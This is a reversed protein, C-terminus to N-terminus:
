KKLRKREQTHFDELKDMDDGLRKQIKHGIHSHKYASWTVGEGPKTEEVNRTIALRYYDLVFEVNAGEATPLNGRPTPIPGDLVALPRVSQNRSSVSSSRLLSEAM